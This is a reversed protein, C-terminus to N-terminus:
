RLAHIWAQLTILKDTSRQCEAVLGTIAEGFNQATDQGETRGNRESATGPDQPVPSSRVIDSTCVRKRALLDSVSATLLENERNKGELETTLRASEIAMAAERKENELMRRAIVEAQADETVRVGEDYADKVQGRHWGYVALLLLLGVLYPWFRKLLALYIM